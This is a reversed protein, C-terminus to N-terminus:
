IKEEFRFETCHPEESEEQAYCNNCFSSYNSTRIGSIRRVLSYNDVMLIIFTLPETVPTDEKWQRIIM